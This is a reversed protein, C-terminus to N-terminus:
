LEWTKNEHTFRLPKKEKNKGSRNYMFVPNDTNIYSGIM